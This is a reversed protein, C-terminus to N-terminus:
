KSRARDYSTASLFRAKVQNAQLQKRRRELEVIAATEITRKQRLMLTRVKQRANSVKVVLKNLQDDYGQYIYVLIQRSRIFSHHMLKLRELEKNLAQLLTSAELKREEYRALIQWRVLGAIRNLRRRYDNADPQDLIKRNILDIRELYDKESASIFWDPRPVDQLSDLRGTLEQRYVLQVSMREVVSLFKSDIEQLLSNYYKNRARVVEQYYVVDRQWSLLRENLEKLDLYNQLSDQTDHSAMLKMLYYTEPVDRSNDLKIVWDKGHRLQERMLRTLYEGRKVNVLSVDLRSLEKNFSRVAKEYMIAARGHMGLKGYAFPIGLLSEQVEQDAINRNSLVSWSVIARDYHKLAIDAWGLGLLARSSFPGELRVREFRTRAQEPKNLELLKYGLVLNSKDRISLSAEDKGSIEGANQLQKLGQHQRGAMILAIGLNYAAFGAYDDSDQLPELIAIADEPKGNVMYILSKQFAVDDQIQEPVEGKINEVIDLARDPQNKHLLTRALRYLALNRDAVGLGADTAVNIASAAREHMRYSLEFSGVTFEPRNVDYRLVGLKSQDLWFDRGLGSELRVLTDFDNGLYSHYLAEGIYLDTPIEAATSRPLSVSLGISALLLYTILRFM